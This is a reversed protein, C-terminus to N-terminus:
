VGKAKKLGDMIALFSAAELSAGGVLVGDVDPMSGLAQANKANVSGGYLIRISESAERGLLKSLVNRIFGHASQADDPGATKGTGIAWVPEYAVLFASPNMVDIGEMGYVLQRELVKEVKGGTREELTEGVCFIPVLGGKQASRLKKNLFADSEGFIARRESHGILVYRAGADRLLAPSIEGTFAGTDQDYCNQGAIGIGLGSSAEVATTICLATPAIVTELGAPIGTKRLEEFFARTDAVTRNLKWNGSAVPTRGM